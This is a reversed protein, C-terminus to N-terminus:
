GSAIDKGSESDQMVTWFFINGDDDEVHGLYGTKDKIEKLIEVAKKNLLDSIPIEKSGPEQDKIRLHKAYRGVEIIIRTM